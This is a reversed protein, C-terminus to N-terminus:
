DRRMAIQRLEKKALSLQDADLREILLIGNLHDLEHQFVRGLLEDGEISILNGDLNTGELHVIKPRVIPWFLGPVSLCGEEYTWEGDSGTIKPNLVVKPGEGIDYVFIRKSIGIQNAALGVGPAEHMVRIMEDCLSVISSDIELVEKTQQKLVPDGYTRIPLNSVNLIRVQVPAAASCLRDM